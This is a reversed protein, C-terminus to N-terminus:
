YVVKPFNILPSSTSSFIPSVGTVIPFPSFLLGVLRIVILLISITGALEIFYNVSFDCLVCLCFKDSRRTSETLRVHCFCAFCFNGEDLHPAARVHFLIERMREIKDPVCRVAARLDNTQRLKESGLIKALRLVM